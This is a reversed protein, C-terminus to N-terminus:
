IKIFNDKYCCWCGSNPWRRTNCIEEIVYQGSTFRKVVSGIEVDKRDINQKYGLM